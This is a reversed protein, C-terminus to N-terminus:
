EDQEGDACDPAAPAPMWHTYEFGPGIKWRDEWEKGPLWCCFYEGAPRGVYSCFPEGGNIGWPGDEEDESVVEIHGNCVDYVRGEGICAIIIPTGDKPASAIPKWENKESM